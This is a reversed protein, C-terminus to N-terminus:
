VCWHTTPLGPATSLWRQAASGNFLVDFWTALGHVTTPAPVTLALPLEFDHLDAERITAFDFVKTACNSALLAPDFADVVV